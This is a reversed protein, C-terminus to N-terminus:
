SALRHNMRERKTKLYARNELRPEVVDPVLEAVEIGLGELATAKAPNNTVLRIKELGLACVIVAAQRYDRADEPLGLALNADVTDLGQDQLAYARLKNVLGIGRGEHQRMYLMTGGLRHLLELGQELQSGCDCRFSGFIDGTACESHVRVAHPLEGDFTWRGEADVATASLHESGDAFAWARMAFVGYETPVLVPQTSEVLESDVRPMLQEPSVGASSASASM